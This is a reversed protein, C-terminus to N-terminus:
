TDLYDKYTLVKRSESPRADKSLNPGNSVPKVPCFPFLEQFNKLAVTAKELVPKPTALGNLLALDDHVDHVLDNSKGIARKVKTQNWLRLFPSPVKGSSISDVPLMLSDILDDAADSKMRITDHDNTQENDDNSSSFSDFNAMSLQKVDGAFPLQLFVLHMPHDPYRNPDDLLKMPFLGGIIPETCHKTKFFLCIAVKELKKLGQALASIAAAAKRSDNSSILYPPGQMYIGPIKHRPAYGLIQMRPENLLREDIDVGDVDLTKENYLLGLGDLDFSSMPILDSGYRLASTIREPDVATDPSQIADVFQTITTVKDTIEVENSSDRLAANGDHNLLTIATKLTEQPTKKMLLVYRANVFLSPAILLIFKRRVATQVRKGKNANLVQKMTSAAIVEGGLKETLSLLLKERDEKTRYRIINENWDVDYDTSCEQDYEVVDSTIKEDDYPQEEMKLRKSRDAREEEEDQQKQPIPASAREDFIGALQFDLGIVYLRCDLARLSDIVTLTQAVDMIIEHEVDTLVFMRREYQKHKTREYLADAALLIGDIIDGYIEDPNAETPQLLSIRRLLDVSPRTVGDPMTLETLNPFPVDMADDEHSAAMQHHCTKITKCVVVCVENTVSELMLESIMLEMAEKACDFRTTSSSKDSRPYRCNMSPSADLVFAVAQKM